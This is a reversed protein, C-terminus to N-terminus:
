GFLFKAAKNSIIDTNPQSASRGAWVVGLTVMTTEGFAGVQDTAVHSISSVM